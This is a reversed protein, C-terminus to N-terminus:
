KRLSKGKFVIPTVLAKLRDTTREGYKETLEKWTLNTTIILMIGNKEAYDVLEFFSNHREGFYVTESETGVDDLILAKDPLSDEYSKVKKGMDKADVFTVANNEGFVKYAELIPKIVYQCITTKGQGIGGLLIVGKGQNDQLWSVIQKYEERKVVEASGEIIDYLVKDLAKIIDQESVDDIRFHKVKPQEAFNIEKM